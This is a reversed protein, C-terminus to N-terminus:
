EEVPLEFLTAELAAVGRQLEKLREPAGTAAAAASAPGEVFARLQSLVDALVRQVPFSFVLRLQSSRLPCPFCQQLCVLGYVYGSLGLYFGSRRRTPSTSDM